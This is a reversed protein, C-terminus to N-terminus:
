GLGSPCLSDKGHDNITFLGDVRWHCTSIKKCPAEEHCCVCNECPVRTKSKMAQGAWLYNRLHRSFWRVEYGAIKDLENQRRYLTM